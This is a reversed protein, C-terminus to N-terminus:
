LSVEQPFRARDFNAVAAIHPCLCNEGCDCHAFRGNETENVVVRMRPSTFVLYARRPQRRIFLPEVRVARKEDSNNLRNAKMQCVKGMGSEAHNKLERHCRKCKM